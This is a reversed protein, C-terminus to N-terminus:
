EGESKPQPALAAEYCRCALAEGTAYYGCDANHRHGEAIKRLQKNEAKLEDREKVLEMLVEGAGHAGPVDKARYIIESLSEYGVEWDRMITVIEDWVRKLFWDWDHQSGCACPAYICDCRDTSANHIELWEPILLMAHDPKGLAEGLLKDRQKFEVEAREARGKQCYSEDIQDILKAELEAVRARLTIHERALNRAEWDDVTHHLGHTAIYRATGLASVRARMEETLPTPEAKRLPAPEGVEPPNPRTDPGDTGDTYEGDDEVEDTLREAKDNM